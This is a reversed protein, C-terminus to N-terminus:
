MSKVNGEELIMEDAIFQEAKITMAISQVAKQVLQIEAYKLRTITLLEGQVRNDGICTRLESRLKQCKEFGLKVEEFAKYTAIAAFTISPFDKNIAELEAEIADMIENKCVNM